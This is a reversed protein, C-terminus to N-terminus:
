RWSDTRARRDKGAKKEVSNEDDKHLDLESGLLERLEVERRATLRWLAVERFAQAIRCRQPQRAEQHAQRRERTLQHAPRPRACFARHHAHSHEAIRFTRAHASESAHLPAAYKTPPNPKITLPKISHTNPFHTRQMTRESRRDSVAEWLVKGAVTKTENPPNQAAKPNKSCGVWCIASETHTSHDPLLSRRFSIKTKM